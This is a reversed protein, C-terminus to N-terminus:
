QGGLNQDFQQGMRQLCELEGITLDFTRPWLCQPNSRLIAFDAQQGGPHVRRQGAQQVSCDCQLIRPTLKLVQENRPLMTFCSVPGGFGDDARHHRMAVSKAVVFGVPNGDSSGVGRRTAIQQPFPIPRTLDVREVRLWWTVVLKAEVDTRVAAKGATESRM